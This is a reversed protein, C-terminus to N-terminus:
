LQVEFLAGVMNVSYNEPGGDTYVRHDYVQGDEFGLYHWDFLNGRQYRDFIRLNVRQHLPITLGVTLANTRYIMPQFGGTLLPDLTPLTLAGPSNYRYDTNGRSYSWDWAADLTVRGLRQTLNAGAYHNRQRDDIWWRNAEPYTPGGLAPDAALALDNVNAIDLDSRDYGYWASAVTAATPQWEWQLSGGLTDYARRGLTADYDNWDGRVSAYLTMQRPLTLTAMLDIKNQTRSGVDYKRLASATHAVEEGTYGPLSSSFTFEYPDYDYESGTRRLWTYNARFTLWDLTRSYWSLKISNDNTTAVERHTRETREFTYTAGLTNKDDLRWDAGASFQHLERDLPLNRIRTPAGPSLIPDWIGSEGPVVSGQSGNEAPYGWQGTLPNYMWYTGDYDQREYRANTRWTVTDTPQLVVRADVMQTDIGLDSRKRSLADTTNWNACDYLAGPIGPIGFQGQCTMPAVIRDNQRM